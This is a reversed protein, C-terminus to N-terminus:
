IGIGESKDVNLRCTLFLLNLVMGVFYAIDSGIAAGYINVEPCSVLFQACVLKIAGASLSSFFVKHLCGMSQLIVGSLQMVCVFLISPVSLRLLMAGSTNRFLIHLILEGFVAIVASMILGCLSSVCLGKRAVSRVRQLNGTAAAGSVVPIISVGLTALFGSPLNLVTMVYGTYTGYLKRAANEALGSRLLSARMVSNDAMSVASSTVSMCLVPLAICVIKGFIRRFDGKSFAVNRMASFYWFVLIATAVFEGIMVGAAAGAAAMDCGYSILYSALLFGAGLKVAAEICQSVATPIMNGGGQFGSKAAAGLAVLFVSPAIARIATAAHADKMALAFFDAGFWMVVSGVFGIACLLVTSYGVVTKARQPNGKAIEEASLKTVAFPIGSVVFSLFMVYVSFATNYIAMGEEHMIYTLPIKLVAGLIKSIANAAMLIIAGSIFSNKM